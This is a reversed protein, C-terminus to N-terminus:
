PGGSIIKSIRVALDTIQLVSPLAKEIGEWISKLMSKKPNPKQLEENFCDFLEAAEKNGTKEIEKAVQLLAMATDRDYKKQIKNFSRKVKSRNIITSNNINSFIDGTHLEGINITIGAYSKYANIRETNLSNDFLEKITFEVPNEFHQYCEDFDTLIPPNNM